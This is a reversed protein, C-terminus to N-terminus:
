SDNSVRKRKRNRILVDIFALLGIILLIQAAALLGEKVAALMSVPSLLAQVVHIVPSINTM